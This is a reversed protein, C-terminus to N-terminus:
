QKLVSEIFDLARSDGSQGLWFVAEKRVVPNKNTKAINILIPVGEDGDMQSLAFVAKKKVETDPDNEIAESIVKAMKQGAKQALWFLAQSRVERDQDQRAMRILEPEAEPVSSESIAFTTEVRFKPDSDKRVTDRLIEFGRQGRASGLWFAAQERLKRPRQPGVFNALAADASSDRHFAIATLAGDARNRDGRDEGSYGAAFGSLWAVSEAPPVNGLWYLTLGALDLGCDASFTRIKQVEGSSVRALVFFSDSEPAHCDNIRDAVMNDENGGELRCGGCCRGNGRFESRANWCCMHHEGDIVPVAYGVWAAAGGSAVKKITNGLGGSLAQDVIKANVIQPKDQELKAPEPKAQATAFAAAFLVCAILLSHKM